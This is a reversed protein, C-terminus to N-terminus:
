NISALKTEYRLCAKPYRKMGVRGVNYICPRWNAKKSQESILNAAFRLNCKWNYLCAKPLGRATATKQNIQVLGHDMSKANFASAEGKSEILVMQTLLLADVKYISAVKIIEIELEQAPVAKPSSYAILLTLILSTTM